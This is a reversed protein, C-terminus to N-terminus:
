DNKKGGYNDTKKHCDVCLTIGNKIDYRDDPYKSWSKIHHAELKGGKVGCHQCTYDDRKFVKNRFDNYRFDGKHKERRIGGKWNNGKEARQALSIKLRSEASMVKGRNGAAIKKVQEKPLKRGLKAISMKKKTEESFIRNKLGYYKHGIKFGSRRDDVGNKFMGLNSKAKSRDYRGRPM